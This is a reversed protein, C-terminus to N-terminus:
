GPAVKRHVSPQRHDLPVVAEGLAVSAVRRAAAGRALKPAEEARGERFAYGLKELFRAAKEEPLHKTLLDGANDESKEKGLTVRGKRTAEQVWLHKLEM